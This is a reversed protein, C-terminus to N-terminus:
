SSVDGNPAIGCTFGDEFAVLLYGEPLDFPRAAAMTVMHGERIRPALANLQEKTPLEDYRPVVRGRQAVDGVTAAIDSLRSDNHEQALKQLEAAADRLWRDAYRIDPDSM